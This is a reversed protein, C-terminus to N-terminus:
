KTGRPLYLGAITAEIRLQEAANARGNPDTAQVSLEALTLLPDGKEVAGLFRTLGAVDGELEVHVAVRNFAGDSTSDSLPDLRMVRLAHRSAALSVIGSLSAQAEAASRGDVLRPALAVVAGLTQALSDRTAAAGGLVDNARAVTQMGEVAEVRLTAVARVTWPVVRLVLVAGVVAAGGWTLARRDRPTM